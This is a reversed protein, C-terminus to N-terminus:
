ICIVCRSGPDGSWWTVREITVVTDATVEVARLSGGELRTDDVAFRHDTSSASSSGFDHRRGANDIVVVSLRFRPGVPSASVIGDSSDIATRAGEPLYIILEHRPGPAPLQTPPEFRVPTSSVEVPASNLVHPREPFRVLLVAGIAACAVLGATRARM